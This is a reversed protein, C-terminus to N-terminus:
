STSSSARTMSRSLPLTALLEGGLALQAPGIDRVLHRQLLEPVSHDPAEHISHLLETFRRDDAERDDGLDGVRECVCTMVAFTHTLDFGPVLALGDFVEIKAAGLGNFIAFLMTGGTADEFVMYIQNHLPIVWGGISVGSNGMRVRLLGNPERRIMAYDHAFDGPGTRGPRTSRFFGEYAAARLATTQLMQDWGALPLVPPAPDRALAMAGADAGFLEALSRPDRRWDLARFGPARAAVLATLRALNRESPQAEGNVWRSVVSKNIALESALRAGSMSFMKLALRLNESFASGGTM